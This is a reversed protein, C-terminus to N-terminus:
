TLCVRSTVTLTMFTQLKPSLLSESMGRIGAPVAAVDARSLIAQLKAADKVEEATPSPNNLFNWLKMTALPAFNPIGSVTGHGGCHAWPTLDAILGDLLLFPFPRDKNIAPNDNITATLRVLKGISGGCRCLRLELINVLLLENIVM